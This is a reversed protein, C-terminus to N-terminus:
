VLGLSRPEVVALTKIETKEANLARENQQYTFLRQYTVWSCCDRNAEASKAEM